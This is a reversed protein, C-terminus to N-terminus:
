SEMGVLKKLNLVEEPSLNRMEGEKLDGLVLFGLRIRRLSMVDYGFRHFMRKIEHYKGEKVIIDAELPSLLTLSAPKIAEEGEDLVVGELLLKLRDKEGLPHNLEAVYEKEIGLNPHILRNNLKGNDTILLVGTTDADLRGVIRARKKLSPDILNLVSPYLEDITSCMYGQPKNMLIYFERQYTLLKGDLTVKNKEPDFLFGEDTIINGDILVKESRIAKKCHKRTGVGMESLFRDLRMKM